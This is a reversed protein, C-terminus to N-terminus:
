RDRRQAIARKERLIVTAREGGASGTDASIDSALAVEYSPLRELRRLFPQLSATTVTFQADTSDIDVDLLKGDSPLISTIADLLLIPHPAAGARERLAALPQQLSDLHAALAVERAVPRESSQLRQSARSRHLRWVPAIACAVILAGAIVIGGGRPKWTRLLGESKRRVSGRPFSLASSTLETPAADAAASAALAATCESAVIRAVRIGCRTLAAVAQELLQSDCLAARVTGPALVQVHSVLPAAATRLFFRHPAAILVARLSHADRTSPLGDITRIQAVSADLALHVRHIGRRARLESALADISECRALVAVSGASIRVAAAVSNGLLVFIRSARKM